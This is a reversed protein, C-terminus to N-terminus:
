VGVFSVLTVSSMTAGNVKIVYYIMVEPPPDGKDM